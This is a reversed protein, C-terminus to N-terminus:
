GQGGTGKWRLTGNGNFVHAGVVIEPVGDRDIDAIAPNDRNAVTGAPHTSYPASKWKRRGDHEYLALVNFPTANASGAVISVAIEPKGDLDVDGAAVTAQSFEYFLGGEIAAPVDFIPAGTDGRIARLMSPVYTLPPDYNGTTFVISPVDKEDWKGDGNDDTLHVVVPSSASDVSTTQVIGPRPWNLELVPHFGGGAAVPGCSQAVTGVNNTEDLEAIAKGSDVFASLRNDRFLVTGSVPVSVSLSGGAPVPEAVSAQGLPNDTAATFAGDADRDEFVVLAFGTSVGLNGGNAIGVAVSGSVALTQPDTAAGSTGVSSVTLDPKQILPDSDTDANDAPHPDTGSAETVSATDTLTTVSPAGTVQATFSRRVTAGGALSFAPWTVLSPPNGSEVGSDSAAFFTIGSPLTNRLVVGTAERAGTNSVTITYELRQGPIVQAVGNDVDVVLDPFADLTDVDSATNDAPRPDLGRTGDDLATAVNTVSALSAPISTSVRATVTRTASQGEALDFAPWAVVVGTATGADSASVFATAASLTDRVVVGKATGSGHNLVSITYTLTAGPSAETAGDGVSVTLDPGVPATLDLRFATGDQWVATQPVQAGAVKFAITQGSQGGEVAATGPIDGPVDLRYVSLGDAVVVATEAFRVGGIWASVVTGAAANSGGAGGVTVTGYFSSPRPPPAGGALTVTLALLLAGFLWSARHGRM